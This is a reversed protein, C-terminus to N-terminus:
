SEGYRKVYRKAKNRVWTVKDQTFPEIAQSFDPGRMKTLTDIAHGRVQTDPLQEAIKRAFPTSSDMGNRPEARTRGRLCTRNWSM